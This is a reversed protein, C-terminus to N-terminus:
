PQKIVACAIRPGANGAPDSKMDDVGAHLVLSTGGNAYVSNPALPDLTIDSMVFETKVKGNGEVKINEPTDGAHHGLPNEFGHHKGTPNFHGGASKFDPETCVAHEHLHLGHEGAPLGMLDLKIKVAGNPMPILKAYGAPAGTSTKFEVKIAKPRQQAVAMGSCATVALATLLARSTSTKLQM